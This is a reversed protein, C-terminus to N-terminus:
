FRWRLGKPYHNKLTGASLKGWGAPYNNVTVLTWGKRGEKRLTEGKLWAVIEDSDSDLNIVNVVDRGTLSIALAHSPEFREKKFTGLHWGARVIKIGEFSFAEDPVIYLNDGFLMFNGEPQFNLFEECFSFYNKLGKRSVNSSFPRVRNEEAEGTSKLSAIFHGEGEAKHPWIRICNALDESKSLSWEPRGKEAGRFAPPTEIIFEPYRSLINEIVQENEEPSFTCTSYIIRGGPKLMKVASELIKTQRESCMSVNELSWHQMTPNDKRFMGEGSCPADVVILDFYQKMLQALHEPKENTVICNKVGMREVNRSLIAARSPVPENAVLVGENQMYSALHTTKGGPAACLDLVKMGPQPAATTGVAMASPEQIYYLGAEHYSHKGPTGSYFYGDASWPSQKLDFQQLPLEDISGKLRNIRLSKGSTISYSKEFDPYEDKLLTKMKNAFKDPLNM